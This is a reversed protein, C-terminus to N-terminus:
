ERIFRAKIVVGATTSPGLRTRGVGWATRDLDINASVSVETPVHQIEVFTILPRTQGHISLSGVVEYGGSPIKRVSQATYAITPHRDTDLFDATRLHADRKKIGTDITAADLILNGDIAGDTGVRAGGEIAKITGRVPIVRMIKTHFEVTTRDRDLSWHGELASLENFNQSVQSM